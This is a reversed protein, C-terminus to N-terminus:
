FLMVYNKIRNIADNFVEGRVVPVLVKPQEKEIPVALINTVGSLGFPNEDTKFFPENEPKNRCGVWYQIYDKSDLFDFCDFWEDKNAEYFIVPRQKDITKKSGKMVELEHGEVDIKMLSINDIKFDDLKQVSVEIGSDSKHIDGYNSTKSVDFDTMTFKGKKSGLATNHLTVPLNQCNYAAVAFHKPHPEFGIVKCGVRTAMGVAHYGINTGIDLYTSDKNVYTAMIDIETDCYEGFVRIALSIINDNKYVAITGVKSNVGILDPKIQEFLEQVDTLEM